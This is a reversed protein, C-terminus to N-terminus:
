MRLLNKPMQGKKPTELFSFVAALMLRATVRTITMEVATVQGM